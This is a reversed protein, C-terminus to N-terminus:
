ITTIGNQLDDWFNPYSKTVVEKDAIELPIYQSVLAFAMAIRHDSYTEITPNIQPTCRQGKWYIADDTSGMMYGCKAMECILADIRNSEKLRLHAIGEFRFEVGLLLCLAVLTPVLDPTDNLNYNVRKPFIHQPIKSLILRSDERKTIIGFNKAIEVIRSDPQHSHELFDRLVIRELNESIAFLAFWWAASSFDAEVMQSNAKYSGQPIRIINGEISVDVSSTRMIQETLRIYPMSSPCQMEITLGNKLHPAILMLASVYQSSQRADVSIIGGQLAKGNIKIPFFGDNQLYEIDAGLQRLADVLSGIPRQSIRKKGQLIYKKGEQASFFATLFRMATGSEGIDITSQESRLAQNLCQTDQCAIDSSKLITEGCIAEIILLRNVISKSAPLTIEKRGGM